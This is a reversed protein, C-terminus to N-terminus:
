PPPGPPTRRAPHPPPPHPLGTALKPPPKAVPDALARTPCLVLAPTRVAEADIAQLVGLGFAATKGSGTPAQAIVDRRELVAPLAQAQIPTLEAYGLAELGPTLAPSLPLDPFRTPSTMGGHDCTPRRRGPIRRVAPDRRAPPRPDPAATRTM